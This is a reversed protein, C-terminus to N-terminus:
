SAAARLCEAETDPADWGSASAEAAGRVAALNDLWGRRFDRACEAVTGIARIAPALGSAMLEGLQDRGADTQAADGEAIDIVADYLRSALWGISASVTGRAETDQRMGRIIGAARLCVDRSNELGRAEARYAHALAWGEARRLAIAACEALHGEVGLPAGQVLKAAPEPRITGGAVDALWAGDAGGGLAPGIVAHNAVLALVTEDIRNM